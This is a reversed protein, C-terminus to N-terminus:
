AFKHNIRSDMWSRIFSKLKPKNSIFAAFKEGHKVYLKYFWSPADEFLWERFMLWKPNEVGYVERAVWCPLKLSPNGLFSGAINGIAGITAGAIQGQAGARAGYTAAQYNALNAANQLGLNIGASPDFLQPGMGM